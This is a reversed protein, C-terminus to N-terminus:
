DVTLINWPKIQVILLFYKRAFLTECFTTPIVIHFFYFYFLLNIYVGSRICTRLFIPIGEYFLILYFHFFINIKLELTDLLKYLSSVIGIILFLWIIFSKSLIYFVKILIYSIFSNFSNEMTYCLRSKIIAEVLSDIFEYCEMFPLALNM